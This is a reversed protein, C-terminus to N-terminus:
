TIDRRNFVFAASGLFVVLYLLLAVIAQTTGITAGQPQNPDTVAGGISSALAGANPGLLGESLTRVLRVFVSVIGIINEIIIAYVLGLGIALATGRLLVGLGFGVSSWAASILLGAGVGQLIDSVGPVNRPLDAIIAMLYSMAMGVALSLLVFIALVIGLATVKAAFITLRAPSQVLMTKLTAWGYESGSTLAGLILAVPGGLGALLSVVFSLSGAPALINRLVQAGTPDDTGESLLLGAYLLLYFLLVGVVLVLGLVWTAPRKRLKLLEAALSGRM